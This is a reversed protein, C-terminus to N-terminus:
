VFPNLQPVIFIKIQLAPTNKSLTSYEAPIDTSEIRKKDFV